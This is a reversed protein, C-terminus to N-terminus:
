DLDQPFLKKVSDWDEDPIRSFYERLRTRFLHRHEVDLELLKQSAINRLVSSRMPMITSFDIVSEAGMVTTNEYYFYQIPDNEPRNKGNEVLDTYEVTGKEFPM